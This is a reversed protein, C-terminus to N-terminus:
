TSWAPGCCWCAWWRRRGEREDEQAPALPAGGSSSSCSADGGAGRPSLADGQLKGYGKSKGVKAGGSGAARFGESSASATVEARVSDIKSKMANIFDKRAKLVSDEMDFKQRNGEIISVTDELDQLDWEISRLCSLLEASRWEFEEGKLGNSVLLLWASHQDILTAVGRNVEEQVAGGPDAALAM